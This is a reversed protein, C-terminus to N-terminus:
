NLSSYIKERLNKKHHRAMEKLITKEKESLKEPLVIKVKVFLDGYGGKLKPMGLGSLKFIKGSSSNPPIKLLVNKSFIPIKIEAGFIAEFMSIPVECWLDDKKREFFKHPSINVLLYVDVKVRDAEIGKLRIKGKNQIGAPVKVELTKSFSIYGVGSCRNCLGLRTVGKGRCEQCVVPLNLNIIKKNGYYADELSINFNSTLNNNREGEYGDFFDEYNNKSSHVNFVESFPTEGFFINFFSSFGSKSKRKGFLDDFNITFGSSYPSSSFWTEAQRSADKWNAGLLDYKRRKESDSLVEYAENIEKFKAEASKNNPNVDPHYKRALRRYAQKIEKESANKTVGLIKYYDKYEM